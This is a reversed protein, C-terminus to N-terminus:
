EPNQRRSEPNKEELIMLIRDVVAEVDLNSTDLEVGAARKYFPERYAIVEELEELVGKGTLSPRRVFSRPDQEIRKRIAEKDAKLWIMLSNRRLATVNKAELVAGGGPAIVLHDQNSVGEIIQKEMARFYDWGYSEVIDRILVGHHEEILNDTDVFKMQLRAALRSGVESKGACRYGILVINMFVVQHPTPSTPHQPLFYKM